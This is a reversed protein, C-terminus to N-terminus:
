PQNVFALMSYKPFREKPYTRQSMSMKVNGQLPFAVGIPPRSVQVKKPLYDGGAIWGWWLNHSACCRFAGGITDIYWGWCMLPLPFPGPVLLITPDLPYAIEWIIGLSDFEYHTMWLYKSNSIWLFRWKYSRPRKRWRRSANWLQLHLPLQTYGSSTNPRVFM